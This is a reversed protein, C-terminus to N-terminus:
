LLCILFACVETMLQVMEEKLHINEEKLRENETRIRTQASVVHELVQALEGVQGSTGDLDEKYKASWAEMEEKYGPASDRVAAPIELPYSRRLAEYKDQLIADIEMLRDEEHLIVQNELDALRQQFSNVLQVVKSAKSSTLITEDQTAQGGDLDMAEQGSRLRKTPRQSKDAQFSSAASPDRIKLDSMTKALDDLGERLEAIQARANVAQMATESSNQKAGFVPVFDLLSFQARIEALEKEKERYQEGLEKVRKEINAGTEPSITITGKGQVMSTSSCLDSKLQECQALVQTYRM